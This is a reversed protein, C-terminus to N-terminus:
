PYFIEHNRGWITESRSGSREVSAEPARRSGQHSGSVDSFAFHQERKPWLVIESRDRTVMSVGM